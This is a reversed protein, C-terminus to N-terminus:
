LCGGEGLWRVTGLILQAARWTRSSSRKDVGWTGLAMGWMDEGCLETWMSGLHMIFLIGVTGFVRDGFGRM